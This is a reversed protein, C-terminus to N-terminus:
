ATACLIKRMRVLPVAVEGIMADYREVPAFGCARYLPEGALTAALVMAGFGQAAAGAECAAVLLRGVGRRTFQPDVYMARLEAPEVSPDLLPALAEAPQASDDFFKTRRRWGGGGVIVAGRATETQAVLYTRDAILRPDLRMFTRSAAIQRESLYPRQLDLSAADILRELAPFDAPTALRHTLPLRTM